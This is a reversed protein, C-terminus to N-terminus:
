GDDLEAAMCCKFPVGLLTVMLTRSWLRVREGGSGDDVSGPVISGSWAPGESASLAMSEGSFM